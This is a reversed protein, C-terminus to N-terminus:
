VLNLSKRLVFIVDNMKIFGDEYIDALKFQEEGLTQLGLSARLALIVDNMKIEGDQNIDGKEYKQETENVKITVEANNSELMQSSNAGKIDTVSIITSEGRRFNEKLKFTLTLLKTSGSHGKDSDLVINTGNTLVFEQNEEMSLLELKTNDYHLKLMIAWIDNGNVSVTEVITGGPEVSRSPTIKTEFSVASVFYINSFFLSIFFMALLIKRVIPKGEVSALYSRSKMFDLLNINRNKM